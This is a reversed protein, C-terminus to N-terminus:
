APPDQDVFQMDVAGDPVALVFGEACRIVPMAVHSSGGIDIVIITPDGAEAFICGELLERSAM